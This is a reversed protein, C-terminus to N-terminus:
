VMIDVKKQKSGLFEVQLVFMYASVLFDLVLIYHDHMFLKREFCSVFNKPLIQLDHFLVTRNRWNESVTYSLATIYM